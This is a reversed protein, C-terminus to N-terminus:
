LNLLVDQFWTMETGVWDITTRLIRIRLNYSLTDHLDPPAKTIAPFKRPIIVFTLTIM